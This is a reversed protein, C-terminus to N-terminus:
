QWNDLVADIDNNHQTMLAAFQTYYQRGLNIGALSLNKLKWEDNENLFMQYQLRLSTDGRLEMGVVTDARPDTAPDRPPLFVLEEGNYSVLSAGYFRTLTTKLIDAFRQLQAESAESAYRSMVVEAVATFDVFTNLVAEVNRFYQDRNGLFLDKSETVTELLTNVGLEATEVASMQQAQVASGLVATMALASFVKKLLNM